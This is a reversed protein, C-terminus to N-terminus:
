FALSGGFSWGSVDEGIMVAGSLTLLTTGGVTVPMAVGAGIEFYDRFGLADDNEGLFRSWAVHANWDLPRELLTAGTPGALATRLLLRHLTEPEEQASDTAHFGQFRRLDYRALSSLRHSDGVPLEHDLRLAGGIAASTSHWNFLIGDLLTASGAAGPGGYYAVNETYALAGSLLPSLHLQNALALRPGVGLYASGGQWRTRLSTEGGPVAGSWIDEHRVRASFWSLSGEIHLETGLDALPLDRQVPLNITTLEMGGEGDVDLRGSSLELNEAQDVFGALFANMHAQRTSARVQDRLEDLTQARLGTVCALTVMSGVVVRTRM